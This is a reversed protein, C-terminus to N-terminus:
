IFRIGELLQTSNEHVVSDLRGPDKTIGLVIATTNAKGPIFQDSTEMTL